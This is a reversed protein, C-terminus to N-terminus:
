MEFQPIIIKLAAGGGKMLTLGYKLLSLSIPSFYAVNPVYVASIHNIYNPFAEYNFFPFTKSMKWYLISGGEGGGRPDINSM